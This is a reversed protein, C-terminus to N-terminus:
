PLTHQTKYKICKCIKTVFYKFDDYIKPRFFREKILELTRDYELHGM